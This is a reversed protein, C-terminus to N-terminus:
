QGSRLRVIREHVEFLRNMEDEPLEQPTCIGFLYYLLKSCSEIQDTKGFADGMNDSACFIGHREMLVIDCVDLLPLIPKYTMPSGPTTYEAMPIDCGFVTALEPLLRCSLKIKAITLIISYMGHAHICVNYKPYHKYVELHMPAESSPKASYGGAVNGKMDIQVIDEPELYGLTSGSRTILVSKEDLRMSINGDQGPALDKALMRRGCQIILEKFNKENNNM